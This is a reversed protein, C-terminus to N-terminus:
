YTILNKILFFGILSVSNHLAHFIVVATLSRTKEYLYCLASSIVFLPLINAPTRHLAAFFFSIVAASFIFGYRSRFLSFLFGRFFLEEALPGLGIIQLSLIAMLLPNKISLLLEIAPAPTYDIGLKKLVFGNLLMAALLLPLMVSYIQVLFFATQKEIQFGFDKWNIQSLLITIIVIELLMNLALLLKITDINCEFVQLFTPILYISLTSFSTLFLIKSAKEESLTVLQRVQIMAFIPRKQLIKVISFYVIHLLGMLFILFYILSFLIIPILFPSKFLLQQNIDFTFEKESLRAEESLSQIAIILLLCLITLAIYINRKPM